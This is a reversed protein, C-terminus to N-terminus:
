KCQGLGSNTVTSAAVGVFQYAATSGSSVCVPTQTCNSCYFIQGTTSPTLAQLQALTRSYLGIGNNASISPASSDTSCNYDYGNSVPVCGSASAPPLIDTFHGALAVSYSLAVISVALLVKKM